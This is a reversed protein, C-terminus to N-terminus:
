VSINSFTVEPFFTTIVVDVALPLVKLKKSGTKCSIKFFGSVLAIKM